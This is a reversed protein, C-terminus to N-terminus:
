ILAMRADQRDSKMAFQEPTGRPPASASAQRFCCMASSELPQWAATLATAGLLAAGAAAAAGAVGGAGGGLATAAGGAAAGATDVAGRGETALAGGAGGADFATEAGGGWFGRAACGVAGAGAVAATVAGAAGGAGCADCGDRESRNRRQRRADPQHDQPGATRLLLSIARIYRRAAAADDVAKGGVARRQRRGTPLRDNRSFSRRDPLDDPGSLWIRVMRRPQFGAKARGTIHRLGM